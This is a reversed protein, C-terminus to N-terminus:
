KFLIWKFYIKRQYDYWDNRSDNVAEVFVSMEM